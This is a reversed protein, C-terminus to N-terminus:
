IKEYIKIKLKTTGKILRHWKLKSIFIYDGPNIYFPLENDIQFKWGEGELIEINRSSLDRHWKYSIPPLKHNFERIIYNSNNLIDKYPKM